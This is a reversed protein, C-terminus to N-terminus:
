HQMGEEFDSTKIFRVGTVKEAVFIDVIKKHVFIYKDSCGGMKFVLRSELPIPDLIRSDLVYRYVELREDEDEEDDDDGDFDFEQITSNDKDLCYLEEYFGLYWFQDFRKGDDDVYVSPCLQMGHVKYSKVIDYIKKPILAGSTDVLVDPIPWKNKDEDRYANGFELPSGGPPVLRYHYKKSATIVTPKLYIQGDGQPLCMIFYQDSYSIM